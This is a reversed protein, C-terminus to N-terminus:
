CMPPSSSRAGRLEAVRALIPKAAIRMAERLPMLRTPWRFRTCQRRVIRRHLWDPNFGSWVGAVHFLNIVCAPHVEALLIHELTEVSYPSASLTEAASECDETSLETDLYLESFATWVPQRIAIDQAPTQM